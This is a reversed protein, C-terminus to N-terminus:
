GLEKLGFYLSSVHYSQGNGLNIFLPHSHEKVFRSIIWRGPKERKVIMRAMCGARKSERKRIRVPTSKQRNANFGEKNCALRRHIISGDLESKRSSIIRTLFGVRRAYEDYFAKAAQVSDFVMGEHPEQNLELECLGSEDGTYSESILVEEEEEKHKNAESVGSEGEFCGGTILVEQKKDAESVGSESEICSDTMVVNQEM